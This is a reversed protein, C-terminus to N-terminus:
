MEPLAIASNWMDYAVKWAGDPQREWIIVFRATDSMATGGAMMDVYWLGHSVAWDGAVRVSDVTATARTVDIASLMGQMWGELAARGQVVPQNPPVMVADDTMYGLSAPIDEAEFAAVWEQSAQRIAAIDETHDPTAPACAAVALAATLTRPLMPM